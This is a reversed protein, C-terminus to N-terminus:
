RNKYFSSGEEYGLSRYLEKGLAKRTTLKLFECDSGAFVNHEITRMIDRAIKQRRYKPTVYVNEILAWSRGFFPDGTMIYCACGVIKNNDDRDRAVLYTQNLPIIHTDATYPKGTWEKLFEGLEYNNHCTTIYIDM